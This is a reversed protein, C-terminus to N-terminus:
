MEDCETLYDRIYVVYWMIRQRYLVSGVYGSARLFIRCEMVIKIFRLIAAMVSFSPM